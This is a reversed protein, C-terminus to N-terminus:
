EYANLAKRWVDDETVGSPLPDAPRERDEQELQFYAEWESLEASTTNRLLQSVTM